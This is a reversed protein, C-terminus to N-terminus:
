FTNRKQNIRKRNGRIMQLDQEDSLESYNEDIQDFKQQIENQKRKQKESKQDRFSNPFNYLPDHQNEIPKCIYDVKEKSKDLQLQIQIITTENHISLISRSIEFQPTANLSNDKNRLGFQKIISSSNIFILGFAVLFIFFTTGFFNNSNESPEGFSSFIDNFLNNNTNKSNGMNENANEREQERETKSPELDNDCLGINPLLFEDTKALDNKNYLQIDNRDNGEKEQADAKYKVKQMGQGKGEKDQDREYINKMELLNRLKLIQKKLEENENSIVGLKENLEKHRNKQKITEWELTVIKQKKRKRFNRANIRNRRKKEEHEDNSSSEKFSKTKKKKRKSRTGAKGKKKNVPKIPASKRKRETSSVFTTGKQLNQQTKVRTQSRTIRRPLVISEKQPHKENQKQKQKEKEKEEENEKTQQLFAEQKIQDTKDIPSTISLLIPSNSEQDPLFDSTSPSQFIEDLNSLTQFFDDDLNTDHETNLNNM